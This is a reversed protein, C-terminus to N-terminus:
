NKHLLSNMIVLDGMTLHLGSKFETTIDRLDQQVNGVYSKM